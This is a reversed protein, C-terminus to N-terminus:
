KTNTTNNKLKPSPAAPLNRTADQLQKLAARTENLQQVLKANSIIISDRSAQDLTGDLSDIQGKITTLKTAANTLDIELQNATAIDATMKDQVKLGGFLAFGGLVLGAVLVLALPIIYRSAKKNVDEELKELKSNASERAADIKQSVDNLKERLDDEKDRVADNIKDLHIRIENARDRMGTLEEAVDARYRRLAEDLSPQMQTSVAAALANEIDARAIDFKIEIPSTDGM